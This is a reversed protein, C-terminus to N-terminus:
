ASLWIVMALFAFMFLLVATAVRGMMAAQSVERAASGTKEFLMTLLKAEDAPELRAGSAGFAPSRVLAITGRLGSLLAADDEEVTVGQSIRLYDPLAMEGIDKIRVIRLEDAVLGSVGLAMALPLTGGQDRLAQALDDSLLFVRLRGYEGPLITLASQDLPM